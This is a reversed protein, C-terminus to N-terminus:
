SHNDDCECLRDGGGRGEGHYYYRPCCGDCCTAGTRGLLPRFCAALFPGVYPIFTCGGGILRGLFSGCCRGCAGCPAHHHPPPTRTCAVGDRKTYIKKDDDPVWHWDRCNGCKACARGHCDLQKDSYPSSTKPATVQPEDLCFIDTM